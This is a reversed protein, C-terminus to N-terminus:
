KKRAKKPEEKVLEARNNAVLVSAQADDLNVTEGAKIMVATDKTLKVKPM